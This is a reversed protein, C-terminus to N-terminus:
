EKDNDKDSDKIEDSNIVNLTNTVYNLVALVKNYDMREPGIVGAHGIEKGKIFYKATVIACKDIGNDDKGIKLQFEIDNDDNIIKTLRDKSEILSLFQKAQEINNYEPYDLIKNAGELFIKPNKSYESLIDIISDFLEKFQEMENTSDLDVEAVDKISKGSFLKNIMENAVNFYSSTIENSIRITKDSIIGSDTIIIVLALNNGLDVLKINNIYINESENLVIVSTYNTIDSIVKATNRIIDEVEYYKNAFHQKLREIEESILPKTEMLKDVYLKYAKVSPMRGASVHPKILYGMEELTALEGRITASSYKSMGSEKIDKSSVPEASSIYKDILVQLIKQKRSSLDDFNM